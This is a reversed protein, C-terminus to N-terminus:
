LVVSTHAKNNAQCDLIHNVTLNLVTCMTGGNLTARSIPQFGRTCEKQVCGYDYTNVTMGLGFSCMKRVDKEAALSLYNSHGKMLKNHLRIDKYAFVSGSAFM